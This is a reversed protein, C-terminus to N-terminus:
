QEAPTVYEDIFRQLTKANYEPKICITYITEPSYTESGTVYKIYTKTIPCKKAWEEFKQINICFFLIDYWSEYTVPIGCKTESDYNIYLEDTAILGNDYEYIIVFGWDGIKPIFHIDKTNFTTGLITITPIDKFKIM